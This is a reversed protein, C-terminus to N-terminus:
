EYRVEEGDQIVVDGAIFPEISSNIINYNMMHKEKIKQPNVIEMLEERKKYASKLVEDYLGLLSSDILMREMNEDSLSAVPLNPQITRAKEYYYRIRLIDKSKITQLKDKLTELVRIKENYLSIANEYQIITNEYYVSIAKDVRNNYMQVIHEEAGRAKEDRQKYIQSIEAGLRIEATNIALLQEQIKNDLITLTNSITLHSVKGGGRVNSKCRCTELIKDRKASFGTLTTIVYSSVIVPSNEGVSFNNETNGLFAKGTNLDQFLGAEADKKGKIRLIIKEFIGLRSSSM